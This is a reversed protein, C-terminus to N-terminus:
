FHLRQSSDRLINGLQEDFLVMIFGVSNFLSHAAIPVLLCDTQEYLWTLALALWFLPVFRAADFHILAFLASVGLWALQPRGLQKIFPYLVGRFIFEEAVPALIITFVGLYVQMWLTEAGAVLKVAVQDEVPWGIKELVFVSAGELGLAVPLIVIMTVVAMLLIPTFKLRRFGFAERWGTQHQRLFIPILIWAVGQFSLTCLLINGVSDPQKFASMGSTQLLGAAALGLCLCVFQVACFQIVFEARWPKASLM